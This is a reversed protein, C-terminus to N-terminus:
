QKPCKAVAYPETMKNKEEETEPFKHGAKSTDCGM